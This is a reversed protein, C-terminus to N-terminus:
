ISRKWISYYIRSQKSQQSSYSPYLGYICNEQPNKDYGAPKWDFKDWQFNFIFIDDPIELPNPYQSNKKDSYFGKFQKCLYFTKDTESYNNM